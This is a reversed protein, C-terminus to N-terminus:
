DGPRTIGHVPHATSTAHVTHRTLGSFSIIQTAVTTRATVTVQNGSIRVQGSDGAAHLVRRGAQAASDPNLRVRGTRRYTVLDLHQAAARAAADADGYLRLNAAIAQGGDWVLGACLLLAPILALVFVTAQGIERRDADLTVKPMSDPSPTAHRPRTM